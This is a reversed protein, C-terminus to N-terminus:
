VLFIFVSCQLYFLTTYRFLIKWLIIVHWHRTILVRLESNNDEICKYFIGSKPPGLLNTLRDAWMAIATKADEMFVMGSQPRNLVRNAVTRAEGQLEELSIAPPPKVPKPSQLGSPFLAKLTSIFILYCKPLLHSQDWVM